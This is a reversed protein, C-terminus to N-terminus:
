HDPDSHVPQDKPKAARPSRTVLAGAGNLTSGLVELLGGVPTIVVRNAM